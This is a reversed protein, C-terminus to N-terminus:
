ESKIEKYIENWDVKDFNIKNADPFDKKMKKMKVHLDKYDKCKKAALYLKETNLVDLSALEQSRDETMFDRFRTM